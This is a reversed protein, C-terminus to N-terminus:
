LVEGKTLYLPFFKGARTFVPNKRLVGVTRGQAWTEAMARQSENGKKLEYLFTQVLEQEDIAGLSPSAVIFVKTFGQENEQEMLQYDLCTGGFKQPLVDGVIRDLDMGYFATGEGTLKEFSRINWCHRRYGIKELPCGCVRQEMMGYDGNEVNLLIKPASPLITTFLFADVSINRADRKHTLVASVDEYLHMDDIHAANKCLGAVTGIESFAYHVVFRAGASEIQEKKKATLPEGGGFFVLGSLDVGQKKASLCLRLAWSVSASVTCEKHQKLTREFFLVVRSINEMGVFQPGPVRERGFLGMHRMYALGIRTRLSVPVHSEDVLSFWQIPFIGFKSLWLTWLMGANYTMAPRVNILPAPLQWAQFMIGGNLAQQSLYEFDLFISRGVSRTGGSRFEYSRSAFPNDFDKEQVTFTKGRRVVPYKGRFEEISFYVGENKLTQLTGEIGEKEVFREIESYSLRASELLPLYPSKKNEFIGRRVLTLFNEQRSRMRAELLGPIKDLDIKERLYASFGSCFRLAAILNEAPNKM